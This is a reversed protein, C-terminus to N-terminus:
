AEAIEPEPLTRLVKRVAYVTVLLLL